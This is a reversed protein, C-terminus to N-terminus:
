AEEWETCGSGGGCPLRLAFVAGGDARDSVTVSGSHMAIVRHAIALGLGTGSDRTTFFPNFIRDRLEAPVGPGDDSVRVEIWEAPEGPDREFSVWVHGGRGSAQVANAIINLFARQLQSPDADVIVDCGCSEVTVMCESTTWVPRLLDVVDHVVAELSVPRCQLECRDAFALIDSVINDLKRAADAIQSAVRQPQPQSALDKELMQAYLLIGGLPNRVEHAVGAAMEGLAALRRKRELERDKQKLQDRLRGVERALTEHSGKLKETVQNYADIIAGLELENTSPGCVGRDRAAASRDLRTQASATRM